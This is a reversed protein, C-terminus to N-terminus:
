RQVLLLVIAFGAESNPVEVVGVGVEAFRAETVHKRGAVTGPDRTVLVDIGIGVSDPVIGRVQEIIEKRREEPMSALGRGAVEEAATEALRDLSRRAYLDGLGAESRARRLHERVVSHWTVDGGGIEARLLALAVSWHPGDSIVSAGIGFQAAGPRILMDRAEPESLLLAWGVIPNPAVIVIEEAALPTVGADLLRAHPSRLNAHGEVEAASRARAVQTTEAHVEFRSLKGARRRGALLKRLHKEVADADRSFPVRAPAEEAGVVWDLGGAATLSEESSGLGQPGLGLPDGESESTDPVASGDVTWLALLESVGDVERQLEFLWTGPIRQMEEDRLFAGDRGPVPSLERRGVQGLPNTVIIQASATGRPLQVAAPEFVAVRHVLLFTVAIRHDASRSWGAGGHRVRSWDVSSGSVAMRLAVDPPIESAVLTVPNFHVDRIGEDWLIQRHLLVSATGDLAATAIRAAARSLAPEAVIRGNREAAAAALIATLDETTTQAFAQTSCLWAVVLLLLVTAQKVRNQM